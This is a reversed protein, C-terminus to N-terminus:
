RLLQCDARAGEYYCCTAVVGIVRCATAPIAKVISVAGCAAFGEGRNCRRPEAM